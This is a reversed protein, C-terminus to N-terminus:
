FKGGIDGGEEHALKELKTLQLMRGGERLGHRIQVFVPGVQVFQGELGLLCGVM